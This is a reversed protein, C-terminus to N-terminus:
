FPNSERKRKRLVRGALFYHLILALGAFLFMLSITNEEVDHSFSSTGIVIAAGIATLILGWKLSSLSQEIAPSVAVPEASVNLKGKEILARRTKYDFFSKIIVAIVVFFSIPILTEM